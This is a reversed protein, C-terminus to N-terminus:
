NGEDLLWYGSANAATCVLAKPTMKFKREQIGWM